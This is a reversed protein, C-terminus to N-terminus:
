ATLPAQLLRVARPVRRVTTRRARRRASSRSSGRTRALRLAPVARAGARPAAPQHRGRRGERRAGQPPAIGFAALQAKAAPAMWDTTWPPSLQQVLDVEAVGIAALQERIMAAILETAPCGSYTPTVAIRCADTAGRWTACSASSSSRSRPCRRIPCTRWRTGCWTSRPAGASGAAALARQEARRGDGSRARIPASCSSCRPSCTAWTSPTCARRGGRGRAGQMWDGAPM